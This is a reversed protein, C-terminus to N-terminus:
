KKPKSADRKKMPTSKRETVFYLLFSALSQYINQHRPYGDSLFLFSILLPENFQQKNDPYLIHTM